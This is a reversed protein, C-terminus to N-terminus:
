LATWNYRSRLIKDKRMFLPFLHSISFEIRAWLGSYHKMARREASTLFRMALATQHLPLKKGVLEQQLKPVPQVTDNCRKLLDNIISTASGHDNLNFRPPQYQCHEAVFAEHQTQTDQIVHPWLSTSIVLRSPQEDGWLEEVM